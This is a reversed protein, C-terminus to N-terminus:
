LVGVCLVRSSKNASYYNNLRQKSENYSENYQM